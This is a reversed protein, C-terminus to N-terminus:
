EFCSMNQPRLANQHMSASQNILVRAARLTWQLYQFYGLKVDSQRHKARSEIYWVNFKLWFHMVFVRCAARHQQFMWTHIRGRVNRSRVRHCIIFCDCPFSKNTGVRLGELVTTLRHTLTPSVALISEPFGLRRSVKLGFRSYQCSTVSWLQSSGLLKLASRSDIKKGVSALHDIIKQKPHLKLFGALVRPLTHLYIHTHTHVHPFLSTQYGDVSYKSRKLGDIM